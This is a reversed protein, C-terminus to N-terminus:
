VYLIISCFFFWDLFVTPRASASIVASYRVDILGRSRLKREGDVTRAESRQAGGECRRANKTQTRTLGVRAEVPKMINIGEELRFGASHSHM